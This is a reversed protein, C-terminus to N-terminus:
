KIDGTLWACPGAQLKSRGHYSLKVSGPLACYELYLRKVQATLRAEVAICVGM